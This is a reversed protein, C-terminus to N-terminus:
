RQKKESNVTNGSTAETSNAVYTYIGDFYHHFSADLESSYQISNIQIDFGVCVEEFIDITESIHQEDFDGM